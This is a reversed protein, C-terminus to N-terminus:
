NAQTDAAQNTQSEAQSQTGDTKELPRNCTPCTLPEVGDGGMWKPWHRVQEAIMEIHAWFDRGEPTNLNPGM